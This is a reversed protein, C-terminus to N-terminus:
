VDSIVGEAFVMRVQIQKKLENTSANSAAIAAEAAKLDEDRQLNQSELTQSLSSPCSLHTSSSLPPPATLHAGLCPKIM